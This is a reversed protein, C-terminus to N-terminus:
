DDNEAGRIKQQMQKVQEVMEPQQMKMFASGAIDLVKCADETEGALRLVNGLYLGSYAIGDIRQLKQNIGFSKALEEYITQFEGKELDGKSLRIRACSFYIQALDGQNQSSEAIPLREEIHIRLAEDTEGRQELIDAIQGMTVARERVDGLKEYVPIEEEKRIRLAEDTEGRQSLIDAIQGMTVARSRVDGLKEYVPIEEEKRIRLAEDTEGRQELIDAIKGMTVARERVDGLKEYVPLQEEKRIRLAEDTEGRQSLIDGVYGRTVAYSRQDKNELFITAANNLLTLARDPDEHAIEGMAYKASLQALGVKDESSNDQGARILELQLEREGLREACNASLLLFGPTPSHSAKKLSTYASSLIPFADIANHQGRFLFSGAAIASNEVIFPEAKGTLALQAAEVGRPDYPFDGDEDQWADSLSQITSAALQQREENSLEPTVLPRALPNASMHTVSDIEGWDDVLGLASLRALAALPNSIGSTKGVAELASVPIPINESFLTIARLQSAQTATLAERYVSFSVREFFELARNEEEPIDGTERWQEIADVAKTAAEFENALIPRTLIEQLGPNGGASNLVRSILKKQEPTDNTDGGQKDSGSGVLREAAQYQKAREREKMPQLQIPSLSLALDKGSPDPLSFQYRSTILLRSETDAASFAKLVAALAERWCDPRGPCNNIKPSLQGPIPVELIQELDDIILLIPADDFPEELLEELADALLPNNSIIRDRWQSNWRARDSGPLACVLKDFITRADYNNYIVVTKYNPLRSAVRAALSSKGLNGMGFLFVGNNAERFLRLVQQVQRRRGVFESATAVPIQQSTKDLFEKYTGSKRLKRKTKQKACLPGGGTRSTYARALHWHCGKNPDGMHQWLLESRALAASYPVSFYKALGGYFFHAFNTADSDFVSGDWGLVNVVGSRVLTRAFPETAPTNDKDARTEALEATRCASGFVLPAKEEGLATSLEHPSVPAESGEPTELLIFPGKDPHIEGHCSLHVAEFPGELAIRESLFPLCGSEEVYLQMPLNATADHIAVEEHEFDLENQGQPAAAMFLAAIDRFQPEAPQRKKFPGIYRHVVYLQTHDEALYGKESALIEWPIDLLMIAETSETEEVNVEINRTGDGRLWSTGWGDSDFLSFIDQGLTLLGAANHSRVLREYHTAWGSLTTRIEESLQIKFEKPPSSETTCFISGGQLTIYAQM